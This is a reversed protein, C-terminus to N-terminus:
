LFINYKHIYPTSFQWFNGFDSRDIRLIHYSGKIKALFSELKGIEENFFQCDMHRMQRLLFHSNWKTGFYSETNIDAINSIEATVSYQKFQKQELCKIIEDFIYYQDNLAQCYNRCNLLFRNKKTENQTCVIANSKM